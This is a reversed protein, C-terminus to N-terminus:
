NTNTLMDPKYRVSSRSAVSIKEISGRGTGGGIIV